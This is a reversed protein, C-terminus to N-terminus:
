VGRHRQRLEAIMGIRHIRLRVGGLSPLSQERGVVLGTALGGIFAAIGTFLLVLGSMTGDRRDPSGRFMGLVYAGRTLQRHGRSNPCTPWVRCLGPRQPWPSPLRQPVRRPSPPHTWTEVSKPSTGLTSEFRRALNISRGPEVLPVGPTADQQRPPRVLNRRRFGRIRRSAPEDRRAVEQKHDGDTAGTQEGSKLHRAGREDNGTPRRWEGATSTMEARM